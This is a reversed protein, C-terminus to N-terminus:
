KKGEVTLRELDDSLADIKRPVALKNKNAVGAIRVRSGEAERCVDICFQQHTMFFTIYCGLIM